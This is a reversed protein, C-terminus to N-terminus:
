CGARRPCFPRDMAVVWFFARNAPDPARDQAMKVDSIWLALILPRL